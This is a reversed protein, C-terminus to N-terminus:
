DKKPKDTDEPVAVDEMGPIGEIGDMELNPVEGDSSIEDDPYEEVPELGEIGAFQLDPAGEEIAPAAAPKAPAPAPPAAPKAPAPAAPAAAAPAAPKAPAPAPAPPAAPKAPPAPAVPAEARPPATPKAAAAPATPKATVPKAPAAPAPAEAPAPEAATREPVAEGSVGARALEFRLRESRWWARLRAIQERRGEISADVDVDLPDQTIREIAARAARRVPPAEDRLRGILPFVAATAGLDGLAGAAAERVEDHDDRLARVLPRTASVVHLWGLYTAAARRVAPHEDTLSRQVDPEAEPGLAGYLGRLAALRVRHSREKLARAFVPRSARDGRRGLADLAAVQLAEDEDRAARELMRRADAHDIDALRAVAAVRVEPRKSDLDESLLNLIARRGEDDARGSAPAAPKRTLGAWLGRLRAKPEPEIKREVPPLGGRARVAEVRAQRIRAELEATRRLIRGSEEASTARPLAAYLEELETSLRRADPSSAAANAPPQAREGSGNGRVVFRVLASAGAGINRTIRKLVDTM